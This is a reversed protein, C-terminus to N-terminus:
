IDSKKNKESSCQMHYLLKKIIFLYDNKEEQELSNFNKIIDNFIPDAFKSEITRDLLYDVSLNFFDAIKELNETTHITAGNSYRSFMVRNINLKKELEIKTIGIGKNYTNILNNLKNNNFM